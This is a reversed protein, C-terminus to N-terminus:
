NIYARVVCLITGDDLELSAVEGTIQTSLRWVFVGVNNPSAMELRWEMWRGLLEFKSTAKRGMRRKRRNGVQSPCFFGARVRGGVGEFKTGKGDLTGVLTGM